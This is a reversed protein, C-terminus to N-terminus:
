QLTFSYSNRPLQPCSPFVAQTKTLANRTGTNMYAQNVWCYILYSKVTEGGVKNTKPPNRNRNTRNQKTQKTHPEPM